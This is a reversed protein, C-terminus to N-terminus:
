SEVEVNGDVYDAEASQGALGALRARLDDGIVTLRRLEAERESAEQRLAANQREVSVARVRWFVTDETARAEQVGARWEELERLRRELGADIQVRLSAAHMLAGIAEQEPVKGDTAYRLLAVALEQGPNNPDNAMDAQPEVDTM